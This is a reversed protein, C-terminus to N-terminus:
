RWDGRLFVAQAQHSVCASQCEKFSEKDSCWATQSWTPRTFGKKPKAQPLLFLSLCGQSHLTKHWGRFELYLLFFFLTFKIYLAAGAYTMTPSCVHAWGSKGHWCICALVSSFNSQHKAIRSRMNPFLFSVEVSVFKTSVSLELLIVMWKVNWKWDKEQICYWKCLSMYLLWLAISFSFSKPQPHDLCGGNM